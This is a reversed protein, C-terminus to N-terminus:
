MSPLEFDYWLKKGKGNIKEVYRVKLIGYTENLDVDSFFGIIKKDKLPAVYQGLRQNLKRDELKLVHGVNDIWPIKILDDLFKEIDSNRPVDLRYKLM